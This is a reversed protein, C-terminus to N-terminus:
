AGHRHTARKREERDEGGQRRAAGRCVDPAFAAALARIPDAYLRPHPNERVSHEVTRSRANLSRTSADSAKKGRSGRRRTSSSRRPLCRPCIGCRSRTDSGCVITSASKRSRFARCDAIARELETDIRRESEKRAIRAAKDVLQAAAFMPPLHRLSLAYRIRM